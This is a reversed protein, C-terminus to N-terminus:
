NVKVIKNTFDLNAKRYSKNEYLLTYLNTAYIDYSLSNILPNKNNLDVEEIFESPNYIIPLKSNDNIHSLMDKGKKNFGLVRIYSPGIKDHKKLFDKKLEFLVYLLIRQFRTKTYSRTNLSNILEFYNGSNISAKKLRVALDYNIDFLESIQKKTFKRLKSLLIIGLHENNIPIKNKKVENKLIEFTIEPITDKIYDLNNNYVANRISTASIYKTDINNSYYNEGVRKITNLNQNLNHQINAKAYEIALINNSGSLIEIINDNSYENFKEIKLLDTLAHKRAAPYVYGEKLYNKIRKNFYSDNKILLEAIYNITEINGHESGFVVNDIIGLHDLLRMSGKAFYEASRISLCLPLEIVLDIGNKLAMETRKWKDCIAPTGRQTFNGSMVAIVSDSNTLKKSKNIHYFHGKHFPNYEAIIGTTKM